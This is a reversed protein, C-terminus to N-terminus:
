LLFENAPDDDQDDDGHAVKSRDAPTAGMSALCMRLQAYGGIPFDPDSQMRAKLRAAIEVQVRDAKCLWPIEDAFEAWANREADTFGRPPAGLPLQAPEKRHKFRQPNKGAAGTLNALQEPLRPRSM